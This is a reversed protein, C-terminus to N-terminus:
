RPAVTQIDLRNLSASRFPQESIEARRYGAGRVAAIVPAPRALEDAALEIRGLGGFHRVRLVGFGLAVV